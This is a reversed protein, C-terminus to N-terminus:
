SPPKMRLLRLQAYPFRYLMEGEGRDDFEELRDEDYWFGSDEWQFLWVRTVGAEEGSIVEVSGAERPPPPNNAHYAASLWGPVFVVADGDNWEARVREGAERWPFAQHERWLTVDGLLSLGVWLAGAAPTRWRDGAAACYDIGGFVLLAFAPLALIPYREKIFMSSEDLSRVVMILIPGFASALLFLIKGLDRGARGREGGSEGVRVCKVLGAAAAAYIALILVVKWWEAEEAPGTFIVDTYIRAVGKLSPRPVWDTVRYVGDLQHRILPLWLPWTAAGCAHAIIVSRLRPNSRDRVFGFFLVAGGGVIAAPFFYHLSMGAALTVALALSWQWSARPAAPDTIRATLWLWLAIVATLPAYCRAQQGYWVNIPALALAAGAWLSAAASMGGRRAAAFVLAPAFSGTVASFARMAEAESGFIRIWARLLYFYLPPNAEVERVYRWTDGAAALRSNAEDFMLSEQGMGCLRVVLSLFYLAFPIFPRAAFREM